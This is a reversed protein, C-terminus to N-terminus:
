RRQRSRDLPPGHRKAQYYGRANAKEEADIRCGLCGIEIGDHCQAILSIRNSANSESRLFLSRDNRVTKPTTIPTAVTIPIDEIMLPKFLLMEDCIWSIPDLKIKTCRMAGVIPPRNAGSSNLRLFSVKSSAFAIPSSDSTFATAGIRCYKAILM